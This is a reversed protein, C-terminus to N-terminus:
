GIVQTAMQEISMEGRLRANLSAAGSLIFNRRQNEASVKELVVNTRKLEEEALKRENFTMTIYWMLVLVVLLSIFTGVWNAYFAFTKSRNMQQNRADLLEQEESTMQRLSADIVITLERNHEMDTQRIVDEVTGKQRIAVKKRADQLRESLLPRLSDLRIQQHVNDATLEQIHDLLYEVRQSAGTFPIIFREDGSLVYARGSSEVTVIQRELEDISGMVQYTHNVWFSTDDYRNITYYDSVGVFLILVISVSFGFLTKNAPFFKM